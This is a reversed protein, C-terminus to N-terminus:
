YLKDGYVLIKGLKFYNPRDSPTRRVRVFKAVSPSKTLDVRYLDKATKDTFVTTWTKGDESFQVEIPVQRAPNDPNTITLGKVRSQGALVVDVWPSNSWDARFTAGDYPLADLAYLYNSPTDNKCSASVKLLADASLLRGGFDNEPYSKGSRKRPSLKEQLDVAKRFSAVNGSRSASLIMMGFDIKAGKGSGSLTGLLDSLAAFRQQDAVMFDACWGLAQTFSDPTGYQVKLTELVVREKLAPSGALPKTWEALAREFFGEEQIRDEPQKLLPMLRVIEGSLKEPSEEAAVRAFYPTLIDWLPQRLEKMAAVCGDIFVRAEALPRKKSNIWDSRTRWAVYHRPCAACAQSYLAAVRDGDGSKENVLCAMELLRDANFREERPAEYTTEHAQCYTYSGSNAVPLISQFGTGRDVSYNIEWKGNQLRRVLACHGPQGVPAAPLGHANACSAGFKSLEGCVGGIPPTYRRLVWEDAARWSEYYFSRQVWEGFCNDSRWPILWCAGAYKAFPANFYKDLIRHQEAYENAYDFNSEVSAPYTCGQIHYLAMRWRWVPQKKASLHFRKSLATTRFADLVDALLAENETPMSLAMATAFRRAYAEKEIWRGDDQFIISELSLLANAWNGCSGSWVFDEIWERDNCFKDIFPKAGPRKHLKEWGAQGIRRLLAYRAIDLKNEASLDGVNKIALIKAAIDELPFPPVAGAGIQPRPRVPARYRERKEFKEGSLILYGLACQGWLTDRGLSLARRLIEKNPEAKTADKRWLAYEAIDVVQRQLVTMHNTPYLRLSAIFKAGGEFDGDRRFRTAKEVWSIGIGTEFRLKWGYKNEADLKALAKWEEAYALNGERIRMENFEGVQDVLLEFGKGYADAASAGDKGKAERFLGEAKDNREKASLIRGALDKASIDFPINELQAFFRRPEPTLCTIAPFRKSEVRLKELAKNAEKVKETPVDMDDYVAFEFGQGILERFKPSEFVRRVDEGSECWDSGCQLILLHTPTPKGQSFACSAAFVCVFLSVAFSVVRAFPNKM